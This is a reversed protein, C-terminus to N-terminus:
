AAKNIKRLSATNIMTAPPQLTDLAALIRFMERATYRKLMRRIEGDTKHETRRRDIYARTRPCCRSRTLTITHMTRNLRRDGGHNLRHRTVRGSSAPIPSVGALAAFAAEDRCRGHHSYSVILQAATVPGVGIQELLVPALQTVIRHLQKENDRLERELQLIHQAFRRLEQRRVRQEIGEGARGRRRSLRQLTAATLHQKRVVQDDADGTLLIALLQNIMATRARNMGDRGVTLLRLAERDGDVRPQPVHDIDMALVARAALQADLVDSKGHRARAARTPRPVELVMFGVAQAARLFGIGYSRSGELGIVLRASPMAQLIWTIAEAHGEGDNAVTLEGIVGGVRDMLCLSVTDVHTDGGVVADVVEAVTSM